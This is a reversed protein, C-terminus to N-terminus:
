LRLVSLVAWKYFPMYFHGNIFPYFGNRFPCFVFNPVLMYIRKIQGANLLKLALDIRAPSFSTAVYEIDVYSYYM